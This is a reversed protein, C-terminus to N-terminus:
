QRTKRSNWVYKKRKMEKKIPSNWNIRTKRLSKSSILSRRKSNKRSPLWSMNIWQRWRFLQRIKSMKNSSLHRWRSLIVKDWNWTMRCKKCIVSMSHQWIKMLIMCTSWKSRLKNLTLIKWGLSIRFRQWWRKTNITCSLLKVKNSRAM